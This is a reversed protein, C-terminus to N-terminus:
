LSHRKSNQGKLGDPERVQPPCSLLVGPRAGGTSTVASSVPHCCRVPPRDGWGWRSPVGRKHPQLKFTGERSRLIERCPVLDTRLQTQDATRIMGCVPTKPFRAKNVAHPPSVDRGRIAPFRTEERVAIVLRMRGSLIFRIKIAAHVRKEELSGGLGMASVTTRSRDCSLRNM